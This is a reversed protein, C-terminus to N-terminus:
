FKQFLIQEQFGLNETCVISIFGFALILERHIAFIVLIFVIALIPPTYLFMAAAVCLLLILGVPNVFFKHLFSPTKFPIVLYVIFLGFLYFETKSFDKFPSTFKM